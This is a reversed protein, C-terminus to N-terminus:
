RARCLRMAGLRLWIFKRLSALETKTKLVIDFHFGFEVALSALRALSGITEAITCCQQVIVTHIDGSGICPSV